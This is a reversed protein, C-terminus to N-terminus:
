DLLHQRDALTLQRLGVARNCDFLNSSQDIKSKMQREVLRKLNGSSAWPMSCIQAQFSRHPSVHFDTRLVLHLAYLQDRMSLGNFRDNFPPDLMGLYLCMCDTTLGINKSEKIKSKICDLKLSFSISSFSVSSSSNIKKSLSLKTILYIMM